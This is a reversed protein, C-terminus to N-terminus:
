FMPSSVSANAAVSGAPISGGASAPHVTARAERALAAALEPRITHWMGSFLRDIANDTSDCQYRAIQLVLLGLGLLWVPASWWDVPAPVSASLYLMLSAAWSLGTWLGFVMLLVTAALFTRYSRIGGRVISHSKEAATTLLDSRASLVQHVRSPDLCDWDRRSTFTIVPDAPINMPAYGDVGQAIRDFVSSHVHPREGAAACLASVDRPHWRYYVAAGGRSDHLKDAVLQHRAYYDRDSDVFRLGRAEARMMMWHLPIISLGQRPYGGGVDSHVGTFWVQEVTPGAPLLEPTFAKREDDLSLAQCAYRVSSPLGMLRPKFHFVENLSAAAEKFSLGVADVTDWLGLFEIPKEAAAHYKFKPSHQRRLYQRYCERVDKALSAKTDYESGKLIGCCDILDALAWATFAGRSFGFLYLRDGPQYVRAVELYLDCINDMLGLGIAGGLVRRPWWNETGVGEDYFAIQRPLDLNHLHTLTDVAEFLKFVNSGRGKVDANGTGDACFIINKGVILSPTDSYVPPVRVPIPPEPTRSGTTIM